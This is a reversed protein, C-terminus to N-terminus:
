GLLAPVLVWLVGRTRPPVPEPVPELDPPFAEEDDPVNMVGEQLLVTAATQTLNPLGPVRELIRQIMAGSSKRLPVTTRSSRGRGPPCTRTFPSCMAATSGSPGGSSAAVTM